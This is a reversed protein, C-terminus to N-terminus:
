TVILTTGPRRTRRAFRDDRRARTRYPRARQPAPHCGGSRCRGGAPRKRPSKHYEDYAQWAIDVVREIEATAPEFAPDFFRERLRRGFEERSLKVDGQGKRM